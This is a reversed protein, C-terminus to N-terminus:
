ASVQHPGPLQCWLWPVFYYWYCNIIEIFNIMHRVRIVMLRILKHESPVSRIVQLDFNIISKLIHISIPTRLNVGYKSWHDDNNLNLSGFSWWRGRAVVSFSEIEIWMWKRNTTIFRTQRVTLALLISQFVTIKSFPSLDVMLKLKMTVIVWEVIFISHLMQENFGFLGISCRKKEMWEHALKTSSSRFKRIIKQPDEDPLQLNRKGKSIDYVQSLDAHLMAHRIGTDLDDEPIMYMITMIRYKKQQRTGGPESNWDTLLAERRRGCCFVLQLIWHSYHLRIIAIEKQWVSLLFFSFFIFIALSVRDM